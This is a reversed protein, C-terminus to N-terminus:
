NSDSAYTIPSLAQIADIVADTIDSKPAIYLLNAQKLMVIQAKNQQAVRRITPDISQRYQQALQSRKQQLLRESQALEQKLRIQAAISKKQFETQEKQSPKKGLELKATELQTNLEDKIKNLQRQATDTFISIEDEFVKSQGTSTAVKDLDIIAVPYSSTDQCATILVPVVVSLLFIKIFCM